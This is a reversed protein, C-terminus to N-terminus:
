GLPCGLRIISNGQTIGGGEVANQEAGSRNKMGKLDPIEEVSFKTYRQLRKHYVEVGEKLYAESTKGMARVIIHMFNIRTSPAIRRFNHVKCHYRFLM